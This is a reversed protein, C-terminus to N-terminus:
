ILDLVYIGIIYVGLLEGIDQCYVVKVIGDIEKEVLVKFNGKFYIKAM